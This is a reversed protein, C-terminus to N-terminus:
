AAAKSESEKAMVFALEAVKDRVDSVHTHIAERLEHVTPNLEPSDQKEIVKILDVIKQEAPPV